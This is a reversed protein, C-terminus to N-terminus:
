GVVPGCYTCMHEGWGAQAWEPERNSVMRVPILSLSSSPTLLLHILAWLCDGLEMKHEAAKREKKETQVCPTIWKVILPAPLTHISVLGADEVCVRVRACAAQQYWRSADISVAFVCVCVCM